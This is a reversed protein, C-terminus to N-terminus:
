KRFVFIVSILVSGIIFFPLLLSKLSTNGFEFGGGVPVGTNTLKTERPVIPFGEKPVPKKTTSISENTIRPPATYSNKTERPNKGIVGGSSGLSVANDIQLSQSSKLKNVDLPMNKESTGFDELKKGNRKSWSLKGGVENWSLGDNVMRGMWYHVAKQPPKSGYVARILQEFDDYGKAM